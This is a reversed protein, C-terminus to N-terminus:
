EELGLKGRAYARIVSAAKHMAIAEDSSVDDFGSPYREQFGIRTLVDAAAYQLTTPQLAADIEKLLDELIHSRNPIKKNYLLVAKLYLEAAFHLEGSAQAPFQELDRSARRFHQEARTQWARWDTSDAM